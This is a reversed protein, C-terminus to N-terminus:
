LKKLSFWFIYYPRIFKIILLLDSKPNFYYLDAKQSGQTLYFILEFDSLTNVNNQKLVINMDNQLREMKDWDILTNEDLEYIRSLKDTFNKPEKFLTDIIKNQKLEDDHLLSCCGFNSFCFIIYYLILINKKLLDM